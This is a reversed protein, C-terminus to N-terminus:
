LSMAGTMLREKQGCRFRDICFGECLEVDFGESFRDIAIAEAMMIAETRRDLIM